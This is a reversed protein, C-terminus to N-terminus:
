LPDNISSPHIHGVIMEAPIRERVAFSFDVVRSQQLDMISLRTWEHLLHRALQRRDSASTSSLPFAVDLLTPVGHERLLARHKGFVSCLWESGYILYHGSYRLLHRQDLVFYVISNTHQSLRARGLALIEERLDPINLQEVANHLLQTLELSDLARIGGALYDAFDHPRCAHYGRVICSELISTLEEEVTDLPVELGSTLLRLWDPDDVDMRDLMQKWRYVLNGPRLRCILIERVLPMWTAPEEYVILNRTVSGRDSLLMAQELFDFITRLRLFSRNISRSPM